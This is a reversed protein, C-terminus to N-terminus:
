STGPDLTFARVQSEYPLFAINIETLTKISKSARSKSILNFLSDPIASILFLFLSQTLYMYVLYVHPYFVTALTWFVCESDSFFVHAGRYIPNRPDRFDNILGEVSQQFCM